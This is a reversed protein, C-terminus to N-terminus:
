SKLNGIEELLKEVSKEWTFLKAREYGAKSLTHKLDADTAMRFLGSAIDDVNYADVIFAADGTVEPISTQNSALLATRCQFAELIPLGLGEFLSPYIAFDSLTYICPMDEIPIQGVRHVRSSMQKLLEEVDQTNWSIHGTFVLHHPIKNQIKGFAELIRRFNKRPSLNTPYFIFRDPLQYQHKVEELKKIDTVRQYQSSAAGYINHVRNPSVHLLRIVDQRTFESITFLLSSQMAAIRMAFRMYLTNWFKYANLEPYFYGLDFMITVKKAPCWFSATGKPFVVIDIADRQLAFPLLFHDWLFINTGKIFRKTAGSFLETAIPMNYYLFIDHQGLTQRIFESVLGIIYENPGSAYQNLGRVPIGIKLRKM